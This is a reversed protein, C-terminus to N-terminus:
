ERRWVISVLIPSDPTSAKVIMRIAPDAAYGNRLPINVGVTSVTSRAKSCSCNAEARGSFWGFRSGGAVIGSRKRLRNGYTM